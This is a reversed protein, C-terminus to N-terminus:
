GGCPGARYGVCRLRYMGTETMSGAPKVGTMFEIAQMYINAVEYPVVCDIPGKWDNPDCVQDFAKRYICALDDVTVTITM